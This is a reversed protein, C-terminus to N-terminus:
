ALFEGEVEIKAREVGIMRSMERKEKETFNRGFDTKIIEVNTGFPCLFLRQLEQIEEIVKKSNIFPIKMIDRENIGTSLLSFSSANRLKDPTSILILEGNKIDLSRILECLVWNLFKDKDTVSQKGYMFLFEDLIIRKYREGRLGFGWKWNGYELLFLLSGEPDEMQLNKAFETKGCSRPAIYHKIKM